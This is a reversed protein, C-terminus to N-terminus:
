VLGMRRLIDRVAVLALSDGPLGLLSRGALNFSFIDDDAPILGVFEYGLRDAEGRLMSELEPKFRNGILFFRKIDIHVEKAVEKVRKATLLGMSSPDTVVVM